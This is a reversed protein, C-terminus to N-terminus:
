SVGIQSDLEDVYDAEAQPLPISHSVDSEVEFGFGGNSSSALGGQQAHATSLSTSWGTSTEDCFMCSIRVAGSFGLAPWCFSQGCALRPCVIRLWKEVQGFKPGATVDVAEATGQSGELNILVPPSSGCSSAGASTSTGPHSCALRAALSVAKQHSTADNVLVNALELKQQEWNTDDSPHRKLLGDVKAELQDIDSPDHSVESVPSVPPLEKRMPNPAARAPAADSERVMAQSVMATAHLLKEARFEDPDSNHKKLLSSVREHMESSCQQAVDEISRVTAAM